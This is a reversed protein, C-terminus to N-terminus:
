IFQGIEDLDGSKERKTLGLTFTRRANKVCTIQTGQKTPWYQSKKEMSCGKKVSKEGYLKWKSNRGRRSNYRINKPDVELM